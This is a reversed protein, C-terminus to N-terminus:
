RKGVASLLADRVEKSLSHVRIVMTFLGANEPSPTAHVVKGQIASEAGNEGLPLSFSVRAGPPLPADTSITVLNGSFGCLVPNSPRKTNM